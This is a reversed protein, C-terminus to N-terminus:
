RAAEPLDGRCAESLARSLVAIKNTAERIADVDDVLAAWGDEDVDGARLEAHASQILAVNGVVVALQNNLEHVAGQVATRLRDSEDLSAQTRDLMPEPLM